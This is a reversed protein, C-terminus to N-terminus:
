NLIIILISMNSLIRIKSINLFQILVGLDAAFIAGKLGLKLKLIRTDMGDILILILNTNFFQIDAIL